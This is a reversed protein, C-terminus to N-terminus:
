TAPASLSTKEPFFVIVIGFYNVRLKHRLLWKGATYWSCNLAIPLIRPPGMFFPQSVTRLLTATEVAMEDNIETSSRNENGIPLGVLQSEVSAAGLSLM